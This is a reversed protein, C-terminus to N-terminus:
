AVALGAAFALNWTAHLVFAGALGGHVDRTWGFFLSPIFVWAAAAQGLVLMHTVAFALSTLLNALSLPGRAATLRTRLWGQLAGRFVIEELLPYVFVIWPWSGALLHRGPSASGPAGIGVLTALGVAALAGLLLCAWWVWSRFPRISM